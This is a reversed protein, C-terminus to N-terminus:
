PSDSDGQGYLSVIERAAALLWDRIASPSLVEVQGGFGALRHGAAVEHEFALTVERWGSDDPLGAAEVLPRAGDGFVEPFAALATPSARVRVEVRPLAAEFAASWQEWFAPLDFGAPRVAPQPLVCAATM